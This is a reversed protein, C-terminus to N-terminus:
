YRVGVGRPSFLDDRSYGLNQLLLERDDGLDARKEVDGRMEAEEKDLFDLEFMQDSVFSLLGRDTPPTKIDDM